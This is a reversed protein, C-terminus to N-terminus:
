VISCSIEDMLGEFTRCQLRGRIYKDLLLKM